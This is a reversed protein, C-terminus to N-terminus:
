LYAGAIEAAETLVEGARQRYGLSLEKARRVEKINEELNETLRGEEQYTAAAGKVQQAMQDKSRLLWGIMEQLTTGKSITAKAGESTGKLEDQALRLHPPVPDEESEEESQVPSINLSFDYGKIQLSVRHKAEHEDRIRGVCETLALSDDYNCGYTQRLNRIHRVMGEYREQQENFTLAMDSFRQDLEPVGVRRMVLRGIRKVTQADIHAPRTRRASGPADLDPPGPQLLPEREEDFDEVSFCCCCLFRLM